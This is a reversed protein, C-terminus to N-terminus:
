RGGGSVGQGEAAAAMEDRPEHAAPAHPALRPVHAEHGLEDGKDEVLEDHTGVGLGERRTSAQM